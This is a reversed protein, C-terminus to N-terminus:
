RLKLTSAKKVAAAAFTAAGLRMSTFATEALLAHVQETTSFNLQLPSLLNEDPIFDVNDYLLPRSM